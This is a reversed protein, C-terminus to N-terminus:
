TRKPRWVAGDDQSGVAPSAPPSGLAFGAALARRVPPAPLAALAPPAKRAVGAAAAAGCAALAGGVAGPTGLALGGEAAWIGRVWLRISLLGVAATIVGAVFAAALQRPQCGSAAPCTTAVGVVTAAVDVGGGCNCSLAPCHLVPSWAPCGHSLAAACLGGITSCIISWVTAALFAFM